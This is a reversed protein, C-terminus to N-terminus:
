TASLLNVLLEIVMVLKPNDGGKPLINADGLANEPSLKLTVNTAERYYM